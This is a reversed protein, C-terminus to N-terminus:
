LEEETIGLQLLCVQYLLETDYERLTEVETELEAIREEPTPEPEPVPIEPIPLATFSVVATEEENLVIDVFGRTEKIENVMNDPVVVYDEYPNESWASNDQIDHFKHEKGNIDTVIFTEKSIVCFPNVRVNLIESEKEIEEDSIQTEEELIETELNENLIEENM